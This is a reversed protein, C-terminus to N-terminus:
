GANGRLFPRHWSEVSSTEPSKLRSAGIESEYALLLLRENLLNTQSKVECIIQHLRYSPSM